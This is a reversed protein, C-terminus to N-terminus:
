RYFTRAISAIKESEYREVLTSQNITQAKDVLKDKELAFLLAQRIEDITNSRLSFGTKKDEFWESACSSSSQIPFAGASMAELMSTSIGDTRSVGLYIRSRSLLNLVQDHTLKNKGFASISISTSTAIKRVNQKTKRSASFVVIEYGQLKDELSRISDLALLAQGSWTEYGKISIVKRLSCPMKTQVLWSHPLGGANPIIPLFDGRYGLNQALEYDRKCEASYSDARALLKVLKLKHNPIKSYWFIDSGWNTVILKPRTKRGFTDLFKYAAATIYGAHQLELAHVYDVNANKIRKALLFGRLRDGIFRDVIWLPIALASLLRPFHITLPKSQDELIGTLIPHVRRHPGSPFLSIELNTAQFQAVWRAFHVSDFMGVVVISGMREITNPPRNVVV